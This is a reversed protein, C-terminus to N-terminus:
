AQTEVIPNSGIKSMFEDVLDTRNRCIADLLEAAEGTIELVAKKNPNPYQLKWQARFAVMSWWTGYHDDHGALVLTIYGRMPHWYTIKLRDDEGEAKPVDQMTFGRPIGSPMEVHLQENLFEVATNANYAGEWAPFALKIQSKAM